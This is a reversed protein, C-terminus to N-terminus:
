LWLLEKLQHKEAIKEFKRKARNILTAVTGDPKRLIDSIENYSKDEFFRLVLAERYKIPLEMLASLIKEHSQKAEFDANSDETGPMKDIISTEDSDSIDTQIFDSYKGKKYAYNLIENHAIRYIWSSFKLNQNFGNLNRYVKIFIDQLLDEADEQMVRVTRHIYRTLKSEYKEILYLYDDPNKLALQVLQNDSM